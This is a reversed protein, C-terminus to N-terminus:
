HSIIRVTARLTTCCEPEVLGAVFDRAPASRVGWEASGVGWEARGVGGEGGASRM